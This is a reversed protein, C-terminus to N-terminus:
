RVRVYTYGKSWAATHGGGAPHYARLRWKGRKGFKMRATYKSYSYYNSARAKVYGAKRWKGSVYREKYVRVPYTRAKHRPKLCGWARAVKGRRVAKPAKPKSVWAKRLGVYAKLCVNTRKMNLQPDELTTLDVWKRGNGESVYSQRPSATAKSSYNRIPTELALEYVREGGVDPTDLRVIVYFTRGRTLNVPTKLKITNYGFGGVTGRRQLRRKTLSTGAYVEFDTNPGTTYFGVARLTGDQTAKFRNAMWSDDDGSLAGYQATWGLPDYQYVKAYNRPSEAGHYVVSQGGSGQAFQSDYYSLWFYGDNGWDTGWSNKILFAGKDAPPKTFNSAAYDDDWGVITVAHNLGGEEGDYYYAGTDANYYESGTSLGSWCMSASVAGYTMLAYKIADNDLADARPSLFLVNQMHKKVLKSTPKPHKDGSYPDQKETLPGGWRTLVATAILDNGGEDLKWDFGHWYALNIESFDWRQNPLLCSEMSALAAFAWCTGLPTQDKVPSVREEERLDYKAPFDAGLPAISAGALGSLDVPSARYSLLGKARAKQAKKFDPNIPARGFAPAGTAFAAAPLLLLVALVSVVLRVLHRM